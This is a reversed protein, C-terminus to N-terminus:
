EVFDLESRELGSADYRRAYVAGVSADDWAMVFNGSSDLALAPNTQGNLTVQNIQFESGQATSASNYRRAYIGPGSGDPSEWGIVFAGNDSLAVSPNAQAGTTVSNVAFVGAGSGSDFHRAYIGSDSNDLSNNMHWAVVYDGSSNLAIQPDQKDTGTFNSVIFESGTPAGVSAFNRAYIQDNAIDAWVVVFDGDAEIAVDPSGQTGVTYTNVRFESGSQTGGSYYARVSVGSASTDFDQWSVVFDGADSLAVAPESVNSSASKVLFESGNLTGSSNYRRAYIRSDTNGESAWTVVFDGDADMAVDPESFSATTGSDIVFAANQAVGSANFQQVHLDDEHEWVAVFRGSDDSAIAPFLHSGSTDLNVRPDYPAEIVDDTGDFPEGSLVLYSAYAQNGSAEVTVSDLLRGDAGYALVSWRNEVFSFLTRVPVEFNVSTGSPTGPFLMQPKSVPDNLILRVNEGLAGGNPTNVQLTLTPRTALMSRLTAADPLADEQILLQAIAQLDFRIPDIEFEDTQANYGTAENLVAQLDALDFAEFIGFGEQQELMAATALLEVLLNNARSITLDIQSVGQRSQYLGSAQFSPLLNGQGDRGIVQVLRYNGEQTPLNSFSIDAQGNVLPIPGSGSDPYVVSQLNEELGEELLLFVQVAALREPQAFQTRFSQFDLKMTLTEAKGQQIVTAHHQGLPLSPKELVRVAANVAPAQQVPTTLPATAQCAVLALSLSTALLFRYQM